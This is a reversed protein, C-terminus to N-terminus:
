NPKNSVCNLISEQFFHLSLCKPKTKTSKCIARLHMAESNLQIVEQERGNGCDGISKRYVIMWSLEKSFNFNCNYFQSLNIMQNQKTKNIVKCEQVSNDKYQLEQKNYIQKKIMKTLRVVGGNIIISRNVSNIRGEQVM